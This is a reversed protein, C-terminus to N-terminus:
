SSQWIGSNASTVDVSEDSSEESEVSSGDVELKM